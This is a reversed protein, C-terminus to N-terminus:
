DHHGARDETTSDQDGPNTSLSTALSTAPSSSTETSMAWRVLTVEDTVPAFIARVPRGIRVLELEGVLQGYMRPGDALEVYGVAYPIDDAFARNFARHYVCYSVLTGTSGVPVWSSEWSLCEPCMPGPPWRLYGCHACKQVLLRSDRAGAWFPATRADSVEPLPKDYTTV